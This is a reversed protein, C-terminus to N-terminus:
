DLEELMNTELENQTENRADMEKIFKLYYFNRVQLELEPNNLEKIDEGNDRLQAIIKWGEWKPFEKRNIGLYRYHMKDTNEIIEKM